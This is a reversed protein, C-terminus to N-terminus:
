CDLSDGKIDSFEINIMERLMKKDFTIDERASTGIDKLVHVPLNIEFTTGKGPESEVTIVGGHMEVISKVLNLGIGSGEHQKTLMNELQCFRKFIEDKKDEPIGIGTDSVRICLSDGKDYVNVLISGGSKTYKTANSLLNLMIREIKEEDCAVIKEEIDTDFVLNIGKSEIYDSVSLTIEEIISIFNCNKMQLEFANADIKSIDILNNVLRLLRFCNLKMIYTKNIVNKLSAESQMENIYTEMLQVACMIVNIPTRLEHSINSFFETKLKDNELVENINQKLRLCEVKDTIDTIVGVIGYPNDSEDKLLSKNIIVNRLSGDAFRTATESLQSVEDQLLKLNMNYYENAMKEDYLDHFTKSHLEEESLGFSKEFARNCGLYKFNLDMFYIPSPITDMLNQLLNIKEELQSAINSRKILEDKLENNRKNLNETTTGLYYVTVIYLLTGIFMNLIGYQYDVSIGLFYNVYGMAIWLSTTIIGDKFSLKVCSIVIFILGMIGKLSLPIFPLINLLLMLIYYPLYAKKM